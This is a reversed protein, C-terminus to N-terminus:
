GGAAAWVGPRVERVVHPISLLFREAWDTGAFRRMAGEPVGFKRVLHRPYHEAYQATTFCGADNGALLFRAAGARVIRQIRRVLAREDPSLGDDEM